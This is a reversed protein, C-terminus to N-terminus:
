PRDLFDFVMGGNASDRKQIQQELEVDCDSLWKRWEDGPVGYPCSPALYLKRKAPDTGQMADRVRRSNMRAFSEDGADAVDFELCREIPVKRFQESAMYRNPSDEVKASLVDDCFLVVCRQLDSRFTVFIRDKTAKRRVPVNVDPYPFPGKSWTASTRREVELYFMERDSQCLVDQAYIGNPLETCDFGKSRMLQIGAWEATRGFEGLLEDYPKSM